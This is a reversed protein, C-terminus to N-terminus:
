VVRVGVYDVLSGSAYTVAVIASNAASLTASGSSVLGTASGCTISSIASGSVSFTCLSTIDTNGYTGGRIGLVSM